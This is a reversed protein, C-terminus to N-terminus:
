LGAARCAHVFGEVLINDANAGLMDSSVRVAMDYMSLLAADPLAGGGPLTRVVECFAQYTLAGSAPQAGVLAARMRHEHEANLEADADMFVGIMEDLSIAPAGAAAGRVAGRAAGAAPMRHDPSHLRAQLGDILRRRTTSDSPLVTPILQRVAALPLLSPPASALSELSAGPM